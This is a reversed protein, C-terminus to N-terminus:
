ASNAADPPAPVVSLTPVSVLKSADDWLLTCNQQFPTVPIVAGRLAGM